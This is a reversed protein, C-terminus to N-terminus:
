KKKKKMWPPLSKESSKKADGVAGKRMKFMAKVALEKSKYPGDAGVYWGDKKKTIKM